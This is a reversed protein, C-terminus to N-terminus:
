SYDGFKSTRYINARLAAKTPRRMDDLKSQNQQQQQQLLGVMAQGMAKGVLWYSECNQNWHYGQTGPSQPWPDRAFNRTEVTAVTGAFEPYNTANAVAFQAAIIAERRDNKAPHEQYGTMGSVGIAVPLNPVGLDQRIDRILNALNTEYEATMDADCGDNWGQHWGFGALEYYGGGSTSDSAYEYYDPFLRPFEYSLTHFTNALMAEYFLGTPKGKESSSPPRFDVALSKGGWAIKLLLIMQTKNNNSCHCHCNKHHTAEALTWGFGLEPGMQNSQGPNGGFGPQLYGHQNIEPRVNTLDQQNYAVFVDQRITWNGGTTKERLMGYETPDNQVLWGLTGNLYEGTTDNKQDVYGHGQMNSQGVLLFVQLPRPPPCRLGSETADPMCTCTSTCNAMQLAWAWALLLLFELHWAVASPKQFVAM